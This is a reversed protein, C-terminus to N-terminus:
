ELRFMKASLDSLDMAEKGPIMISNIHQLEIAGFFISVDIGISIDGVANVIITKRRMAAYPQLYGGLHFQFQHKRTACSSSQGELKMNVYGSQWAWYMGNIPDLDGGLAGSTSTLSDIGITFVIKSIQKESKKAIPFQLSNPNEIDLLHYSNKVKVVSKDAYQIEINSIYCKFSSVSLTDKKASVYTKNIELPVADFLPKFSITLSDNSQAYFSLSILLTLVLYNLKSM